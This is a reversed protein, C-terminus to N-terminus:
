DARRKTVRLVLLSAVVSLAIVAMWVLDHVVLLTMM